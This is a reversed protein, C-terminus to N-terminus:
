AESMTDGPTVALKLSVPGAPVLEYWASSFAQGTSSCDIQTGIQELANASSHYSGLGVWYASSRRQGRSCSAAPQVWTSAVRRYRIGPKSVAYGAWNASMVSRVAVSAGAPARRGASVV